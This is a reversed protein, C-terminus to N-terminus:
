LAELRQNILEQAEAIKKENEESSKFAKELEKVPTNSEMISIFSKQYNGLIKKVLSVIQIDYQLYINKQYDQKHANWDEYAQRQERKVEESTIVSTALSDYVLKEQKAAMEALEDRLKLLPESRVNRKWQQSDMKLQQKLQERLGLYTFIGGVLVGLLTFLGILWGDM